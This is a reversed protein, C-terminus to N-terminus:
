NAFKILEEDTLLKLLNNQVDIFSEISERVDENMREQLRQVIQSNNTLYGPIKQNAFHKNEFYENFAEMMEEELNFDSTRFIPGEEFMPIDNLTRGIGRSFFVRNLVDDIGVEQTLIAEPVEVFSIGYKSFRAVLESDPFEGIKIMNWAKSLLEKEENKEKESLEKGELKNFNNIKLQYHKPRTTQLPVTDQFSVSLDEDLFEDILNKVMFGIKFIGNSKLRAVTETIIVKNFTGLTWQDVIININSYKFNEFINDIVEARFSCIFKNRCMIWMKDSMDFLDIVTEENVPKDRFDREINIFKGGILLQRDFDKNIFDMFSENSKMFNYRKLNFEAFTEAMSLVAKQSKIDTNDINRYLNSNDSLDKCCVLSFLREFIWNLSEEFEDGSGFIIEEPTTDFLNIYDLLITETIFNGSAPVIGKEIRSISAKDSMREMSIGLNLRLKKCRESIKPILYTQLDIM